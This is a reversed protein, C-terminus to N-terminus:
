TFIKQLLYRRASENKLTRYLKTYEDSTLCSSGAKLFWQENRWITFNNGDESAAIFVRSPELKGRSLLLSPIIIKICDNEDEARIKCYFPDGRNDSSFEPSLADFVRVCSIDAYIYSITAELLLKKPCEDLKMPENISKHRERCVLSIDDPLYIHGDRGNYELRVDRFTGVYFSNYPNQANEIHM